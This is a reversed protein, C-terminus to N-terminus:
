SSKYGDRGIVSGGGVGVWKKLYVGTRLVPSKSELGNCSDFAIVPSM